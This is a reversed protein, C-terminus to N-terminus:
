YILSVRIFCYELDPDCFLVFVVSERSLCVFCFGYKYLSQHPLQKHKIILQQMVKQNRNSSENFFCNNSSKCFYSNRKSSKCFLPFKIIIRHLQSAPVIPWPKVM